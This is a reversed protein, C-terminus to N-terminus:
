LHFSVTALRDNIANPLLESSINRDTISIHPSPKLAPFNPGPVITPEAANLRTTIM